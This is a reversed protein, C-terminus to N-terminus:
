SKLFHGSMEGGTERPMLLSLPSALLAIIAVAVFALAFDSLSPESRHQVAVAVELVAAGASIGLTLSLQQLTSYLSTAASMRERPIDAYALTNYATFQLSRVFGGVLLAAYIAALPWAPGFAGCLGLFLASVVGNWVLTDRFGLWRLVRQAVPKMVIAGASSAFTIAGSQAASKGFGIQMMLPLLFPVAGVGVRFLTGGLIAVLFSPVRLLSLDLLPQPHRGAHRVYAAGAVVGVALLGVTVSPAVLGRGATELGFMLAPLSIGSLLLGVTDFRTPRPERVDDVFLTVLIIGLVGIPLNIDFIWRWSAYTVLFGGLPPGVVPGVLAPITLWAMAAVLESKAVSRLLVLRGVPVM